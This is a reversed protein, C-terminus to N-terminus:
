KRVGFLRMGLSMAPGVLLAFALTGWGVSGGLLFGALLVVMEIATRIRKVGWRTNQSLAIVLGDRPGAGLASSVYMGTGVGLVVVGLLFQVWQEWLVSPHPLHPLSLDIFLGILAMNLVTGVGVPHRLFAWSVGLVVLGMLITTQGVSLPTHHSIGQHLADWPSLGVQANLMLAIAVSCVVLGCLLMVFRSPFSWSKVNLTPSLM